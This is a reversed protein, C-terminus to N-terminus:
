SRHVNYLYVERGAGRRVELTQGQSLRVARRGPDEIPDPGVFMGDAQAKPPILVHNCRPGAEFLVGEVERREPLYPILWRRWFSGPLRETTERGAVGERVRHYAIESGRCFRPKRIIGFLYWTLILLAVLALILPGCKEWFSVDLVEVHITRRLPPDRPRDSRIVVDLAFPGTPTFCPTCWSTTPRLVWGGGEREIEIRLPEGDVRELTWNGLDDVPVSVGDATPALVIPPAEDLETVRARWPAVGPLDLARPRCEVGRLTFVASRYTFYGPYAATVSVPTTDAPAAFRHEFFAGGPDLALPTGRTGLAARVAFRDPHRARQVLTDGAAALLTARVRVPEGACVEYVTGTPTLPSGAEDTIWVSLRAAVEPLVRLRERDVRRDFRLAIPGAPIPSDPQPPLAHTVRGYVADSGFVGTLGQFGDAPTAPDFPGRLALPGGSGTVTRVRALRDAQNGQEFATVRRLPFESVFSASSDAYQVAIPQPSRATVDAAVQQMREIIDSRSRAEYRRAQAEEEWLRAVRDNIDGIQLFITQAGTAAVFQRIERRLQQEAAANMGTFFQGDSIVVLWREAPFLDGGSERGAQEELLRMAAQVAEYPTDGGPRYARYIARLAEAQRDLALRDPNRYDSMRVVALEDEPSLLATLTQLAYNAARWAEDAHMSGSDDYVVAVARQQAAAPGAGVLLLGLAILHGYFRM